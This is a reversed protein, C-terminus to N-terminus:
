LTKTSRHKPSVASWSYGSYTSVDKQYHCREKVARSPWWELDGDEPERSLFRVLGKNAQNSGHKIFKADILKWKNHTEVSNALLSTWWLKWSVTLEKIGTVMLIIRIELGSLNWLVV